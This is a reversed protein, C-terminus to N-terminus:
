GPVEQFLAFVPKGSSKSAKLAANMDRGWKVTGLEPQRSSKDAMISHVALSAIVGLGLFIAIRM